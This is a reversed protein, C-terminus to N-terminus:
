RGEELAAARRATLDGPALLTVQAFAQRAEDPLGRRRAADGVLFLLRAKRRADTAAQAAARFRAAAAALLRQEAALAASAARREPEPLAALAARWRAPLGFRVWAALLAQRLAAPELPERQAAARLHDQKRALLDREVRALAALDGALRARERPSSARDLRAELQERPAELASLAADLRLGEPEEAPDFAVRAELATLQARAQEVEAPRYGGDAGRLAVEARAAWAARLLLEGVLAEHEGPALGLAAPPTRAYLWAALEHRERADPARGAALGLRAREAAFPARLEDSAPPPRDRLFALGCRGCSVVHDLGLVRRKGARDIAYTCGDSDAGGAANYPASESPVPGRCLPCPVEAPAARVVGALLLLAWILCPLLPPTARVPGLTVVSPTLLRPVQM